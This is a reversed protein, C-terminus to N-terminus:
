PQEVVRCSATSASGADGDFVEPENIQGARETTTLFRVIARYVAEAYAIKYEATDIVAAESPNTMYLGEVIAAPMEARRLLGYYDDGSDPDVRARAGIVRGGRWEADFQAFSRMLEYHLLGALRDSDAQGVSYYVEPGPEDRALQPVSNNHISVLVHAGAGRAVQSRHGLGLEYDGADPGSSDRTLVVLGAAPYGSGPMVAGTQWDVTNARRFLDRALEAIELNVHSERMGSDAVAGWDRGGHGPDLAIAADALDIPLAAPVAAPILQVESDLVWAPDNCPTTIHLWEGNRDDVGVVIGEHMRLFGVGRPEAAIDAGGARVVAVGRSVDRLLTTSTTTVPVSTVTPEAHLEGAAAGDILSPEIGACSALVM